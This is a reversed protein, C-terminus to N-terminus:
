KLGVEEPEAIELCELRQVPLVGGGQHRKREGFGIESQLVAKM